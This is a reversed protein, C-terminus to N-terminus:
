FALRWGFSNEMANNKLARNKRDQPKNVESQLQEAMHSPELAKQSACEINM